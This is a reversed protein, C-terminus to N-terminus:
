QKKRKVKSYIWGIFLYIMAFVYLLPVFVACVLVIIMWYIALKAFFIYDYQPHNFGWEIGFKAIEFTLKAFGEIGVLVVNNFRQRSARDESYSSLNSEYYQMHETSNWNFNSTVEYIDREPNSKYLAGGVGLTALLFVLLLWKFIM